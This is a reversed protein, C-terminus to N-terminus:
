CHMWNVWIKGATRFRRHIWRIFLCLIDGMGETTEESIQIGDLQQVDEPQAGIVGILAIDQNASFNKSWHHQRYQEPGM